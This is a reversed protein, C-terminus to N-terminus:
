CVHGQVAGTPVFCMCPSGLPLSGDVMICSGMTTCCAPSVYIPQMVPQQMPAPQQQVTAPAEVMEGCDKVLGMTTAAIGLTTSVIALTKKIGGGSQPPRAPAVAAAQRRAQTMHTALWFWLGLKLIAGLGAVLLVVGLILVYGMDM